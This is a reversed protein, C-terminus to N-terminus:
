PSGVVVHGRQCAKFGLTRLVGLPAAGVPASRKAHGGAAQPRTSLRPWSGPGRHTEPNALIAHLRLWRGPEDVEGVQGFGPKEVSKLGPRWSLLAVSLAEFTAPLWHQPQCPDKGRAARSSKQEFPVNIQRCVVHDIECLKAPSASDLLRTKECSSSEIQSSPWPTPQAHHAAFCLLNKM